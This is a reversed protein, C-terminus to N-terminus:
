FVHDFNTNNIVLKNSQLVIAPPFDKEKLLSSRIYKLGVGVSITKSFTKNYIISVCCEGAHALYGPSGPKIKFWVEGLNFCTFNVGM